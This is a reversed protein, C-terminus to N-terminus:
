LGQVKVEEIKELDPKVESETKEEKIESDEKIEPETVPPNDVWGCLPIIEPSRTETLALTGEEEGSLEGEVYFGALIDSFLDRALASLARAYLMRQPFRRWVNFKKDDYLGARIADQISFTSVWTNENDKRVGKVVCVKESYQECTITHGQARIIQAMLGSKMEIKGAVVYFGRLAIDIPLNLNKAAFVIHWLQEKSFGEALPIKTLSEVAKKAEEVLNVLSVFYSHNM